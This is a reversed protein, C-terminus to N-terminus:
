AIVLKRGRCLSLYDRIRTFNQIRHENEPEILSFLKSELEAEEIRLEKSTLNKDGNFKRIFFNEPSPLDQTYVPTNMMMEYNEDHQLLFSINHFKM